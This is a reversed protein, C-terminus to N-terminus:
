TRPQELLGRGLTVSRNNEVGHLKTHEGTCHVLVAFVSNQLLDSARLRFMEEEQETVSTTLESSKIRIMRLSFLDVFQM